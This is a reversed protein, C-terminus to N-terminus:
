DVRTLPRPVRHGTAEIRPIRPTPPRACSRRRVSQAAVGNSLPVGRPSHTLHWFCNTYRLETELNLDREHIQNKAHTKQRNPTGLYTRLPIHTHFGLCSAERPGNKGLVSGSHGCGSWWM